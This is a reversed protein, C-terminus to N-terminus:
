VIHNPPGRLEEIFGSYSSSGVVELYTITYYVFLEQERLWKLLLPEQITYHDQNFNEDIIFSDTAGFSQSNHFALELIDFLSKEHHHHHGHEHASALEDIHHSHPIIAHLFTVM